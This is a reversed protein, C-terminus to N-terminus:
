LEGQTDGGYLLFAQIMEDHSKLYAYDGQKIAPRVKENPLKIRYNLDGFVFVM